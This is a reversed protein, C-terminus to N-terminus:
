SEDPIDRKILEYVRDLENALDMGTIENNLRRELLVKIVNATEDSLGKETCAKYLEQEVILNM